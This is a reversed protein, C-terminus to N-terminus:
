TTSPLDIFIEIYGDPSSEKSKDIAYREANTPRYSRLRSISVLSEAELYFRKGNRIRFDRSDNILRLYDLWLILIFVVAMRAQRAPRM